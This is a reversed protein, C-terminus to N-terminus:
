NRLKDMFDVVPDNPVLQATVNIDMAAISEFVDIEEELVKISKTIDKSGEKYSMNGVNVHTLKGGAKLYRLVDTPNKFVLFLRQKGYKGSRINKAASEVPLVSLRMSTPAAMRLSSKQLSDAAAEDNIVIIRQTHLSPAWIGAVQGHILREDIRVNVINEKGKYAEYLQSNDKPLSPEKEIETQKMKQKVDVIGTTAAQILEKVTATSNLTAEIVLPLSMGAIIEVNESELYNSLAVNCPTGGLLDAIILSSGNLAKMKKLLEEEFQRNDGDPTLAVVHVHDQKGVIMELSAKVGEAMSGHSILIINQM